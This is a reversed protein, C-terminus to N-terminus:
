FQDLGDDASHAGDEGEGHMEDANPEPLEFEWGYFIPEDPDEEVVRRGRRRRPVWGGRRWRVQPQGVDLPEQQASPQYPPPAAGVPQVRAVAIRMERIEGALQEITGTNDAQHRAVDAQVEATTAFLRELTLRIQQLEARLGPDARGREGEANEGRGGRGNEEHRHNSGWGNADHRGFGGRGNAHRHDEGAQMAQVYTLIRATCFFARYRYTSVPLRRAASLREEEERREERARAELESRAQSESVRRMEEELRMRAAESSRRVSEHEELSRRLSERHEDDLRRSEESQEVGYQRFRERWWQSDMDSLFFFLSFVFGTVTTPSLLLFRLNIKMADFSSEGGSRGSKRETAPVAHGRVNAVRASGRNRTKINWAAHQRQQKKRGVM